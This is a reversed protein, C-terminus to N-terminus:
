ESQQQRKWVIVIGQADGTALLSETYNFAPSLVAAAHGQLKNIVPRQPREADLFLVSGDESGSVVAAGEHFSMLPPFTARLCRHVEHAVSLQRRLVLGGEEDVVSYLLLANCAVSVLLSPDRAERSAWTRHELNTITPPQQSSSGRVTLLTRRGKRLGGSSLDVRFATISGKDDGAWLTTGHTNFALATVPAPTPATGGRVTHGTSLVVVQVLGGGGAGESGGVLVWNSNLPHFLVALAAAGPAVPPRARLLAGTDPRWVCLSGDSSCTAVLENSGSWDVGTVPATHHRLTHLVASREEARCVTATGDASSCCLLSNDNHGFKVMTIADSHQDFIHHVGSFAYNEGLTTGGVIARSARARNTPVVGAACPGARGSSGFGTGAIAARFASSLQGSGGGNDCTAVTLRSPPRSSRHSLQDLSIRYKQQLLLTRTSLYSFSSGGECLTTEPISPSRIVDNKYHNSTRLLHSRRRLYLRKFSPENPARFNNFKADLALVQHWTTM